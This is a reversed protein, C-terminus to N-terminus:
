RKIEDLYSNYWKVAMAADNYAGEIDYSTLGKRFAEKIKRYVDKYNAGKIEIELNRFRFWIPMLWDYSKNFRATSALQINLGQNFYPDVENEMGFEIEWEDFILLMKNIEITNDM